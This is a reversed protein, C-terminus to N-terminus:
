PNDQIDTINWKKDISLRYETVLYPKIPSMVIHCLSPNSMNNAVRVKAQMGEHLGRRLDVFAGPMGIKWTADRNVSLICCHVSEEKELCKEIVQRVVFIGDVTSRVQRFGFQLEMLICEAFLQAIKALIRTFLKWGCVVVSYRQRADGKRVIKQFKEM